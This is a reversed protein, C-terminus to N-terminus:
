GELVVYLNLQGTRGDAHYREVTRLGSDAALEEAEADSTHHCFRVPGDEDDLPGWRLLHDGEELGDTPDGRRELHERCDVRRPRFRADEGFQWFSVFLRGGPVLRSGADRLIRARRERGPVHHLLGFAVILDHRRRLSLLGAGEFLDLAIWRCRRRAGLASARARALLGLSADVGWAEFPRGLREALFAGFRGNGCGLDLLSLEETARAARDAAWEAVPNWGEWPAGRTRDFADAHRSYFERDLDALARHTPHM